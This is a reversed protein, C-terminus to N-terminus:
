ALEVELYSDPGHHATNQSFYPPAELDFHVYGDSVKGKVLDTRSAIELLLREGPLFRAAAPALSFLLSVAAGPVLPEVPGSDIAIEYRNSLAKDVRRRAPRIAGMSLLHREGKADLRWLAAVVYSDIENCSFSLALTVAGALIAERDFSM